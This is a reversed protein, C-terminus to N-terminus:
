IIQYHITIQLMKGVSRIFSHNQASVFSGMQEVKKGRIFPQNKRALYKYFYAISLYPMSVGAYFHIMPQLEIHITQRSTDAADYIIIRSSTFGNTVKRQDVYSCIQLQYYQNCHQTTNIKASPPLSRSLKTSEFKSSARLKSTCTPEFVIEKLNM